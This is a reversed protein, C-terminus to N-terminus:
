FPREMHQPSRPSTLHRYSDAESPKNKVPNNGFLRMILGMPTFVFYFMIGLLLRTNLWGLILAIFMWGHYIWTLSKPILLALGWLVGAIIWPWRPFALDFLWPFFLGFLGAFMGGMILGFERLGKKDPIEIHM